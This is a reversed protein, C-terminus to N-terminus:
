EGGGRGLPGTSDKLYVVKLCGCYRRIQDVCHILELFFLTPHFM